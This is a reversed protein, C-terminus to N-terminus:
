HTALLARAHAIGLTVAKDRDEIPDAVAGVFAIYAVGDAVGGTSPDPDIGLSKAMAYSAEGIIAHPGVDGFVGYEVKNDYIVAFVTGFSLGASSYDFLSSIGPVVVYPLTAADLPQGSSDTASTQAQFDPDTSLNCQTSRQGDCDIDMDAKFFLANPLGCINRDAPLGASDAFPGGIVPNCTAIRALLQAATPPSSTGGHVMGQHPAVGIEAEPGGGGPDDPGGMM